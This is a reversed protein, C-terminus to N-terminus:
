IVLTRRGLCRGVGDGDQTAQTLEELSQFLQQVEAVKEENGWSVAADHCPSSRSKHHHKMIHITINMHFFTSCSLYCGKDKNISIVKNISKSPNPAYLIVFHRVFVYFTMGEPPTSSEREAIKLTWTKIQHLCITEDGRQDVLLVRFFWPGLDEHAEWSAAWHSIFM